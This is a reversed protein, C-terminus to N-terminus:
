KYRMGMEEGLMNGSVGRSKAWNKVFWLAERFTQKNPVLNLIGDNVRPGNLSRAAREEVNILLNDDQLSTLDRLSNLALKCFSLDVAVGFYEFTIIPTYAELIPNVQTVPPPNFDNL